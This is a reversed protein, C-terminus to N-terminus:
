RLIGCGVLAADAAQRTSDAFGLSDGVWEYGEEFGYIPRVGYQYRQKVGADLAGWVDCPLAQVEAAADLSGSGDSDFAELLITLVALDWATSGGAPVARLAVAPGTADGQLCDVLRGNVVARVSPDFGLADGVWIYGHAFGYTQRVGHTWSRRVGQDVARWDDCAISSAEAATDLLGSLDSDYAELLLPAVADDWPTLGGTEPRARIRTAVLSEAATPAVQTLDCSAIRMDAGARILEAFGLADGQWDRDARFGYGIRLGDEWAERARLDLAAFVQCPIGLLEETSDLQGSADADYALLLISQVEDNWAEQGGLGPSAIAIQEHPRRTEAVAGGGTWGSAECAALRGDAFGRVGESFGLGDGLWIRGAEFGYTARVGGEWSERVRTDLAQWTECAIMEVEPQKDVWGSSDLDYNALLVLRTKADWGTSGGEDAFGLIREAAPDALALSPILLLLPLLLLCSPKM